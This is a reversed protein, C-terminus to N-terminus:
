APVEKRGSHKVITHQPCKAITEENTLERSYDVVALAGEMRIADGAARTCLTCGICGVSCIKKVVNGRDKSSCLVHITRSEPVLKIIKKPCVKVCRGCGICLEPHVKALRAPTIEIADAPCVRACSGLGLCGYSCAKDGGGVLAAAACDAIGNYRFKRLATNDDGNCLVIAVQREMAAPEIGLCAALAHMTEAGGPKCLNVQAHAGALARAYESCGPFGCAGCNVGPLLATLAEVRPDEHVAFFRSAVGLLVSCFLGIGGM